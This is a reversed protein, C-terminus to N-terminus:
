LQILPTFLRFFDDAGTLICAQDFHLLDAEIKAKDSFINFFYGRKQKPRMKIIPIMASERNLMGNLMM